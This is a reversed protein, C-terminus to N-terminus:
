RRWAQRPQNSLFRQRQAPLFRQPGPLRRFLWMCRRCDLRSWSGQRESPRRPTSVCESRLRQRWSDVVIEPAAFAVLAPEDRDRLAPPINTVVAIQQERTEMLYQLTIEPAGPLVEGMISNLLNLITPSIVISGDEHGPALVMSGGGRSGPLIHLSQAFLAMESARAAERQIGQWWTWLMAKQSASNTWQTRPSSAVITTGAVTSPIPNSLAAAANLAAPVSAM